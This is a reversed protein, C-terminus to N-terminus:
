GIEFGGDVSLTSGTCYGANDSLLFVVAHAIEEPTGLRRLPVRGLVEEADLALTSQLMDTEVPGPEVTNIRIGKRGFEVALARTLSEGAGKTAAYVSQGRAPRARVASGINVISGARARMMHPIAFRCGHITGLLNTEIQERIMEDNQTPLLGPRNVGANNVWGHLTRDGDFLPGCASEIAEPDRVDFPLAWTEVGHKTKLETALTRAADRSAHYNVIVNAGEQACNTAIAKGIGRAAGTVMITKGDLIKSSKKRM